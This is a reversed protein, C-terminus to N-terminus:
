QLQRYLNFHGRIEKTFPNLKIAYWYDDSPLPKGNYTGDWGASKGHFKALLRGSRDHIGVELEPYCELGTPYWTDHSGDGNPTLFKPIDFSECEVSIKTSGLCGLADKATITFEGPGPIELINSDSFDRSDLQFQYPPVGGLVTATIQNGASRFASPYIPSSVETVTFSKEVVCEFKDMVQVIYEGPAHVKIKNNTAFTSFGQIQYRYTPEGGSAEIELTSFGCGPIETIGTIELDTNEVTITEYEKGCTLEKEVTYDGPETVDLSRDHGLIEGNSNRWTYSKYIAGTELVVDLKVSGSDCKLVKRQTYIPEQQKITVKLNKISQNDVYDGTSGTIGFYGGFQYDKQLRKPGLVQEMEGDNDIDTYVYILKDKYSIRFHRYNDSRLKKLDETRNGTGMRKTIDASFGTCGEMYPPGLYADVERLQIEPNDWLPSSPDHCNDFIDVAVAFGLTSNYSNPIGLNGGAGPNGPPNGPPAVFFGFALGEGGSNTQDSWIRYDFDVQFESCILLNVRENYFISGSSNPAIDCLQIEDEGNIGDYDVPRASGDLIWKNTDLPFELKFEQSYSTCICTIIVALCLVFHKQYLNNFFPTHMLLSYNVGINRCPKM